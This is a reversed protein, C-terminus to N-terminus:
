DTTKTYEIIIKVYFNNWVNIDNREILVQLYNNLENVYTISIWNGNYFRQNLAIKTSTNYLYGDFKVITDYYNGDIYRKISTSSIGIGGLDVVKRYIPKGDIWTGVKIEETSYNNVNSMEDLYDYITKFQNEAYDQYKENTLYNKQGREVKKPRKILDM